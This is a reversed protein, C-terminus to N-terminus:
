GKHQMEGHVKVVAKLLADWDAETTEWGASMRVARHAQASKYGM